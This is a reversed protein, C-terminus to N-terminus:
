HLFCLAMLLQGYFISSGTQDTRLAKNIIEFGREPKGLM